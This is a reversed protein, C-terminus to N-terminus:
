KHYNEGRLISFSRYLQELLIVLSLEHAFTLASLALTEDARQHISEGLGLPGGIIFCLRKRSSLLWGNMKKALRESDCLAGKRDLVICYDHPDLKLLLREAERKRVEESTLQAMKEAAVTEVETALYHGLRRLYEEMLAKYHPNAPKGVVVLTIKM